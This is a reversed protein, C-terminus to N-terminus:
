VLCCITKCAPAIDRGEDSYQDLNVRVLAVPSIRLDDIIHNGIDIGVITRFWITQMPANGSKRIPRRDCDPRSELGGSNETANRNQTTPNGIALLLFEGM